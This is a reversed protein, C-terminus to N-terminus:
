VARKLVALPESLVSFGESEYLGIAAENGVQTNLMLAHAGERKAWRASSRVLSRGIGIGQAAPDVALRQLYAITTGVGSLAFGALGGTSNRVVQFISRPTAAMAERLAWRDFQWFDDFAAADIRLAEDIDADGGPTVLHGPPPIHDLERRLLALDAHHVFSADCWSKQAARPLPPSLVGSVGVDGLADVCDDIFSPGGGRCLRLHAMPVVGNWPRSEARAWGKRLTIPEPWVGEVRVRTSV